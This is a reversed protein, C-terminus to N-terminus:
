RRSEDLLDRVTGGGLTLGHRKGFTGLRRAAEAWPANGEPEHAAGGRERLVRAAYEELSLGRAKAQAVLRAQVYEPLELKLTM